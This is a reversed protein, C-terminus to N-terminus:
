KKSKSASIAYAAGGIIVLAIGGVLYINDRLKDIINRLKDIINDEPAEGPVDPMDFFSEDKGSPPAVLTVAGGSPEDESEPAPTEEPEGDPGDTPEPTPDPTPEEYGCNAVSNATESYECEGDICVGDYQWTYPEVCQDSCTIGECPDDPEGTYGCKGIVYDSKWECWTEDGDSRCVGDYYYLGDDIGSCYSDCTVSECPDPPANDVVKVSFEDTDDETFSGAAETYKRFSKLKIDYTGPTSPATYEFYWDYACNPEVYELETTYILQEDQWVTVWYWMGYSTSFDNCVGVDMTGTSEPAMEYVWPGGEAGEAIIGGVWAPKLANLIKTFLSEELVPQNGMSVSLSDNEEYFCVVAIVSILVVALLGIMVNKNKLIELNM